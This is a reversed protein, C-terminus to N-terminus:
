VFLIDNLGIRRLLCETTRDDLLDALHEDCSSTFDMPERSFEIVWTAPKGCDIGDERQCCTYKEM